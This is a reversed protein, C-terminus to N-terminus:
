AQKLQSLIQSVRSLDTMKPGKEDNLQVVKGDKILLSFRRARIGLGAARLDTELYLTKILDGSGDAIYTIDEKVAIQDAFAKLVFPDNVALAYVKAVGSGKLEKAKQVYEPIHTATCTPTFAGPFGVIVHTGKSFLSESNATTKEYQGNKFELLTLDAKPFKDGVAIFRAFMNTISKSLFSTKKLSQM